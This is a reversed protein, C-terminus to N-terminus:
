KISEYYVFSTDRCELHISHSHQTSTNSLVPVCFRWDGFIWVGDGGVDDRWWGRLFDLCGRLDRLSGSVHSQRSLGRLNRLWDRLDERFWVSLGVVLRFM